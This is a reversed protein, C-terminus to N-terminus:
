RGLPISYIPRLYESYNEVVIQPFKGPGFQPNNITRGFASPADKIVEYATVGPRYKGTIPHSPRNPGAKGVQLGKFLKSSSGGARSLGSATTHFSTQGPAGGYVIKGKKLTIDKFKDVGPYAGSGQQSRAFASPTKNTAVTTSRKAVQIGASYGATAITLAGEGVMLGASVVAGLKDGSAWRSRSNDWAVQGPVITRLITSSRIDNYQSGDSYTSVTNSGTFWNGSQKVSVLSLAKGIPDGVSSATPTSNQAGRGTPDVFNVPDGNAFSYLDMSAAHGFPDPSIFRGETANYYRAGM